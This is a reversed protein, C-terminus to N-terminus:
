RRKGTALGTSPDRTTGVTRSSKTSSKGSSAKAYDEVTTMHGGQRGPRQGRPSSTVSRPGGGDPDDVQRRKGAQELLPRNQVARNLEPAVSDMGAAAVDRANATELMAVAFIWALNRIHSM